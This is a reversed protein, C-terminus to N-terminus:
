GFVKSYGLGYIESWGDASGIRASTLEPTSFEQISEEHNDNVNDDEM